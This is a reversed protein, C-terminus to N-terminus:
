NNIKLHLTKFLFKWVFKSRKLIHDFGLSFLFTIFEFIYVHFIELVFSVFSLILIFRAACLSIISQRTYIIFNWSIFTQLNALNFSRNFPVRFWNIKNWCIGNNKAVSWNSVLFNPLIAFHIVITSLRNFQIVLIKFSIDFISFCTNFEAFIGFM